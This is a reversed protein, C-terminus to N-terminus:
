AAVIGHDALFRLTEALTRAPHELYLEHTLGALEVLEGPVGLAALTRRFRRASAIAVVEDDTGHLILTPPFGGSPAYTPSADGMFAFRLEGDDTLGPSYLALAAVPAGEAAAAAAMQGGSSGGAAVIRDPRIGLQGAHAHVWAIARCADDVCDVPSAGDAGALRFGATIGILGMGALLRCHPLFEHRSGERWGGGHFFILAARQQPAAAAPRVLDLALGPEESGAYSYTEVPFRDTV